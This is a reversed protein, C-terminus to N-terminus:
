LLIMLVDKCSQTHYYEDVSGFGFAPVLLAQDFERVHHTSLAKVLDLQLNRAEKLETVAALEKRLLRKLPRTILADTVWDLHLAATGTVLDFANSVSIASSM